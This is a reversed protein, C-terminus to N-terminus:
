GMEIKDVSILPITIDGGMTSKYTHLGMSMGYLTIMDDELVRSTMIKSNYYVLVIDDHYNGYSSAKTAVRLQTENNGEIVQVVRGYFKVKKGKYDDPNRALQDYTIGTEYGIREEEEAKEKAIREEEEAKERNAIDEANEKVTVVCTSYKNSSIVKIVAEGVESALFEKKLTNENTAASVCDSDIYWRVSDVTDNPLVTATLTFMDGHIVEYTNKDLSISETHNACGSLGITLLVTLAFLTIKKNIM